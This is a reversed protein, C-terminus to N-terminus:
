TLGLNTLDNILQTYNKFQIGIIGYLSAKKINRAKDDIFIIQRKDGKHKDLFNIFAKHYPKKIYDNQKSPISIIDFQKTIEPFKQKFHEFIDAGINSFLHITFGKAKLKHLLAIMDPNPKQCNAIQVGLSVYPALSQYKAGLGIIYEEAVADQWKLTIIDKWIFPNLMALLLKLKKNSKFFTKTIESYDYNVIVDHLDFTIITNQPTISTYKILQKPDIGKQNSKKAFSCTIFGLMLALAIYFYCSM